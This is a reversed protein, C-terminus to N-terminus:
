ILIPFKSPTHGDYNRRPPRVLSLQQDFYQKFV